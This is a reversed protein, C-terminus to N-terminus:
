SLFKSHIKRVLHKPLFVFLFTKRKAKELIAMIKIERPERSFRRIYLLQIEKNPPIVKFYTVIYANNIFVPEDFLKDSITRSCCQGIFYLTLWM